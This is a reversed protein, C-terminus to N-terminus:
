KAPITVRLDRLTADDEIDKYHVIYEPGVASARDFDISAIEIREEDRSLAMEAYDLIMRDGLRNNLSGDPKLAENGFKANFMRTKHPTTLVTRIKQEISQRRGIPELTNEDIDM